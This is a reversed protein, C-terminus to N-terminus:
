APIQLKSNFSLLFPDLLRTATFLIGQRYSQIFPIFPVPKWDSLLVAEHFLPFMPHLLM